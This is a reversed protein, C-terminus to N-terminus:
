ENVGEEVVILGLGKSKKKFCKPCIDYIEEAEEIRVRRWGAHKAGDRASAEDHGLPSIADGCFDCWVEYANTRNIM